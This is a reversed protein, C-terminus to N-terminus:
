KRPRGPPGPRLFDLEEPRFLWQNTGPVQWGIASRQHQVRAIARVRRPTIHFQEAVDEVTLLSLLAYSGGTNFAMQAIHDLHHQVRHSNVTGAGYPFMAEMAQDIEHTVIGFYANRDM